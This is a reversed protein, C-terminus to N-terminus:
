VAFDDQCALDPLFQCNSVQEFHDRQPVEVPEALTVGGIAAPPKHCLPILLSHTVIRAAEAFILGLLLHLFLLALIHLFVEPVVFHFCPKPTLCLFSDLMVLPLSPSYRRLLRM